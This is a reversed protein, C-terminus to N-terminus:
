ILVGKPKRRLCWRSKSFCGVMKAGLDFMEQRTRTKPGAKRAIFRGNLVFTAEPKTEGEYKWGAAKYIKGTHGQWKDAYTVLTHWKDCDILRVSKSLLFSCANTPVGPVIVMRSLSLVGRWDKNAWAEAASRTPPIWWACGVLLGSKREYLGHSYTRTNSGGAAYHHKSVLEQAQQLSCDAVWYDGKRLQLPSIPISGNGGWQISRVAVTSEGCVLSM